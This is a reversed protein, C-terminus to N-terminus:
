KQMDEYMKSELAKDYEDTSPQAKARDLAWQVAWICLPRMYSCSRFSGDALWAEPTQYMYGHTKYTTDLVGQMTGFAEQRLGVQVMAAAAAYTTGTWVEKSQMCSEDGDGSPRMGNVAGRTGDMFDRVNNHYVSKLVSRAQDEPVIGGLGCSVSYWNGAMMDAQISNYHENNSTDYNFYSGNWLKTIYVDRAKKYAADYYTFHDKEKFHHAIARAVKLTAVWLGGCYASIGTASWTDYTQDPFGENEIMGDGDKDFTFSYEIAKRVIPWVSRLFLEDETAIFDRYVQLVFKCNLDKWRQIQQINYSNPKNWPDEGPNGIDHPVCWQVLRNVTEGDHLIPWQHTMSRVTAKAIDEQLSIQLRPFLSILAFSAYFHVDYTNCMLYEHGELYFFQGFYDKSAVKADQTASQGPSGNTWITGGDTLYYLENFLGTIYDDPLSSDALIPQQWAEIRKVWEPYHHLGDTAIRVAANGDHGYFRTYRRYYASGSSFRAIPADWALSFVITVKGGPPITKSVAVAGGITENAASPTKDNSNDLRGSTKFNNWLADLSDKSDASFRSTYSVEKASGQAAIAFSLPDNYSTKTQDDAGSYIDHVWAHSMKVGHATDDANNFHENVHGGQKDSGSGMGNKFSFM